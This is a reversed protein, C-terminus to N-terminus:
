AIVFTGNDRETGASTGITPDHIGRMLGEQATTIMLRGRTDFIHGIALGRGGAVAQSGQDVLLWEDARVEQHFWMAHDMSAGYMEGSVEHIGLAKWPSWGLTLDSAFTVAASHLLPDDSLRVPCRYWVQQRPVIEGPRGSWGIPRVEIPAALGVPLEDPCPVAPADLQAHSHEDATQFSAGLAFVRREGQYALVSRLAASRGDRLRDVRYEVPVDARAPALFYAHLSRIPWGQDVTRGAALVAQGAVQGGFVHHGPGLGCQGEFRDVGLREVHLRAPLDPGATFDSIPM